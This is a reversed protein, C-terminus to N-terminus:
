DNTITLEQHHRCRKEQVRETEEKGWTAGDLELQKM